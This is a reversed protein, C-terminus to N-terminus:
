ALLYQNKRLFSPSIKIKLDLKKLEPMHDFVIKWFKEQLKDDDTLFINEKKLDKISEKAFNQLEIQSNSINKIGHKAFQNSSKFGFMGFDFMEKLSIFRDKKISYLHKTIFLGSYHVINANLLTLSCNICYTPKGFLQYGTAIGSDSGFYATSKKMLYIDLFDSRLNSFPYDLVKENKTDFKEEVKRGVRVVQFGSNVFEDGAKTLSKVDFNRYNHYSWDKKNNLFNLYKNDRNHISIIPFSSSINLQKLTDEGHILEDNTFELFDNDELKYLDKALLNQTEQVSYNNRRTWFIFLRELTHILKSFKYIKFKRNLMKKLQMNTISNEYCVIDFYKKKNERNDNIYNFISGCFMGFRSSRIMGFRFHVMPRILILIFVFPSLMTSLFFLLFYEKIINSIKKM